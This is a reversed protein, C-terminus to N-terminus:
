LRKVVNELTIQNEHIASVRMSFDGIRCLSCPAETGQFLTMCRTTKPGPSKSRAM